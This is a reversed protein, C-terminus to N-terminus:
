LVPLQLLFAFTQPKVVKGAGLVADFLAETPPDLVKFVVEGQPTQEPFQTLPSHTTSLERESRKTKASKARFLSAWNEKSNICSQSRLSFYKIRTRWSTAQRVDCVIYFTLTDARGAVSNYSHQTASQWCCKSTKTQIYKRVLICCFFIQKTGDPLMHAYNDTYSSNVAFQIGKGWTGQNSFQCDLAEEGNYVLRSPMSSTGYWLWKKVDELPEEQEIQSQENSVVGVAM